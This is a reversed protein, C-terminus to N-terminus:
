EESLIKQELRNYRGINKMKAETIIACSLSRALDDDYIHFHENAEPAILLKSLEQYLEQAEQVTLYLSLQRISEKKELDIMRM